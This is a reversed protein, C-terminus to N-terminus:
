RLPAGAGMAMLRAALLHNAAHGSRRGVVHARLPRRVLCLDGLIDVIKHRVCEDDFRPKGIVAGSEEVILINEDTAGRGMGMDLFAQIEPRLVYTKAPAIEALYSAETVDVTLTQRGLFRGKYDLTYTVRLGEAYPLAELTAEGESVSVAAAPALVECAARQEAVGGKLILEVFTMASGDGVPLEDGWAEVTLNDVGLGYAASLLHEVM